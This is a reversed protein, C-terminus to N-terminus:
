VLVEAEFLIVQKHQLSRYFEREFDPTKYNNIKDKIEDSNPNTIKFKILKVLDKIPMKAVMARALERFIYEENIFSNKLLEPTVEIKSINLM